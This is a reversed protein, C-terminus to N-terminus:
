VQTRLASTSNPHDTAEDNDEATGSGIPSGSQNVTPVPTPTPTAQPPRSSGDVNISEDLHEYLVNSDYRQRANYTYTRSKHRLVCFVGAAVGVVILLALFIVCGVSIGIAAANTISGVSPEDRLTTFSGEYAPGEGGKTVVKIQVTYKSRPVLDGIMLLSGNTTLLIQAGNEPILSVQYTPFGGAQELTLPKWSLYVATTNIVLIGLDEVRVTPAIEKSFFVETAMVRVYSIQLTILAKYPKGELLNRILVDSHTPDVTAMDTYVTDPMQENYLGYQLTASDVSNVGPIVQPVVWRLQVTGVSDIRSTLKLTRMSVPQLTSYPGLGAATAAAVSCSYTVNERFFPVKASVYEPYTFNFSDLSYNHVNTAASEICRVTYSKIIGNRESSTPISWSVNVSNPEITYMVNRPAGSPNTELTRVLRGRSRATITVSYKTYPLLGAIDYYPMSSDASVMMCSPQETEVLCWKILFLATFSDWTVRVTSSNVAIVSQIVDQKVQVSARLSNNASKCIFTTAPIDETAGIYLVPGSPSTTQYLNPNGGATPVATEGNLINERYWGVMSGGSCTLQIVENRGFYTTNTYDSGDEGLIVLQSKVGVCVSSFFLFIIHLLVTKDM